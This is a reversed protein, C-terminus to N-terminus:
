TELELRFGSLGLGYSRPDASVGLEQPTAPDMVFFRLRLLGNLPASVDLLREGMPRVPDFTWTAALRGDAYVTVSMERGHSAPFARANFWVRLLRPPSGPCAITMSGSRGMMWCGWAEPERWGEMLCAVGSGGANLGEVQGARPAPVGQGFGLSRLAKTLRRVLGPREPELRAASMYQEIADEQTGFRLLLDGFSLRLTANDPDQIVRQAILPLIQSVPEGAAVRNFLETAPQRVDFRVTRVAMERATIWGDCNFRFHPPSGPWAIGFHRLVSPHIPAGYVFIEEGDYADQLASRIRERTVPVGIRPLIELALQELVYMQPHLRTVFVPGSRLDREILSFMDYGVVDANRRTSDGAIQFLRDLNTLRAFDLALYTEVVDDVLPQPADAAIDRSEILRLLQADCMVHNFLGEPMAVTKAEDNRRHARVNFPWLFQATLLPFPVLRGRTPWPLEPVACDNAQILVTDAAEIWSSADDPQPRGIKFFRTEVDTPPCIQSLVSRIVGGHCNGVVAIRQPRDTM